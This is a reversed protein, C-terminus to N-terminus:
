QRFCFYGEDARARDHRIRLSRQPPMIARAEDVNLVDM